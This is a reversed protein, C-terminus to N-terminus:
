LCELYERKGNYNNQYDLLQMSGNLLTEFAEKTTEYSNFDFQFRYSQNRNPSYSGDMTQKSKPYSAITSGYSMFSYDENWEEIQIVTGDPMLGKELVKM